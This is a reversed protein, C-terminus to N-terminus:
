PQSAWEVIQDLQDPTIYGRVILGKKLEPNWLYFTPTASFGLKGLEQNRAEINKATANMCSLAEKVADPGFIKEAAAKADELRPTKGSDLMGYLKLTLNLYKWGDRTKNYLCDAFAHLPVVQPHIILDVFHVRLTGDKILRTLEDGTDKYFKGCFPCWYDELIYLELKAEGGVVPGKELQQPPPESTEIGRAGLYRPLIKQAFDGPVYYGNGAPTLYDLGEALPNNSVFVVTPLYKLKLPIDGAKVKEIKTINAVAMQTLFGRLEDLNVKVQTFPADGEVIVAAASYSFVPKVGIREALGLSFHPGLAKFGDVEGVSYKDLQPIGRYLIVPYVRLKKGVGRAPVVCKEVGQLSIGSNRFVIDLLQFANKAAERQAEGEYVYVLAKAASCQALSVAEGQGAQGQPPAQQPPQAQQPAQKQYFEWYTFALAAALVVIIGLLILTKVDVGRSKKGRAM